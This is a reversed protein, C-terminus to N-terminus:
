NRPEQASWSPTKKSSGDGSSGPRGDKSGEASAENDTEPERVRKRGSPTLTLHEREPFWQARRATCWCCLIPEPEAAGNATACLECIDQRCARCRTVPPGGARVFHVCPHVNQSRMADWSCRCGDIPFRIAPLMVPEPPNDSDEVDSGHPNNWFLPPSDSEESTEVPTEEEGGEEEAEAIDTSSVEIAALPQRRRLGAADEADEDQSEASEASVAHSMTSPAM